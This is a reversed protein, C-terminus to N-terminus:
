ALKSKSSTKVVDYIDAAMLQLSGYQLWSPCEKAMLMGIKWCDEDHMHHIDCHAAKELVREAWIQDSFYAPFLMGSSGYAVNLAQNIKGLLEPDPSKSVLIGIVSGIYLLRKFRSPLLETLRKQLHRIVFNPVHRGFRKRM